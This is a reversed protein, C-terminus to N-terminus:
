EGLVFFYDVDSDDEQSDLEHQEIKTPYGYERGLSIQKEQHNRKSHGHSYSSAISLGALVLVIMVAFYLFKKKM